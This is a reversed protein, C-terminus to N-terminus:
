RVVDYEALLVGSDYARSAVRQLRAPARLAGILRVGDQGLVVPNIKLAIRDVLGADALQGALDAGGCLYVARGPRAKLDHVFRVVDGEVITVNPHTSRATRSVVYTALWPYPDAIGAALAPGYTRRGMIVADYDRRLRALYDDVHDGTMAFDGFSGDARAIYGDLTVAVHYHLSRM